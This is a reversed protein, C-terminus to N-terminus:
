ISPIDDDELLCLRLKVYKRVESPRKLRIEDVHAQITLDMAITSTAGIYGTEDKWRHRKCDTQVRKQGNRLADSNKWNIGM